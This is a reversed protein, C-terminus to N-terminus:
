LFYAKQYQEIMRRANFFSCNLSIASENGEYM